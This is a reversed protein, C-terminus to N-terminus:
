IRVIIVDKGREMASNLAMRTGCKEYRGDWFAVILDADDIIKLNRAFAAQGFSKGGSLDPLHEIKEFCMEDAFQMAMSDVGKAGGSVITDVGWDSFKCYRLLKEKFLEYDTFFRSGIIALKM